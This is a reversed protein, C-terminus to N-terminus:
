DARLDLRDFHNQFRKRYQWPLDNHGDILPVRDLLRRAREILAPDATKEAARAPGAGAGLSAALVLGCGLAGWGARRLTQPTRPTRPTKMRDGGRPFPIPDPRM